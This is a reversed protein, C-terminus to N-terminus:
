KGQLYALVLSNFDKAEDYLGHGWEHYLHLVANPIAQAIEQSPEWGLVRDDEGGIVFTPAHIKSLKEAANHTLCAESQKLFRDYSDPKTLKALMPIYKKNKRYYADSYILRVNSDMLSTHDDQLAYEKWQLLGSIMIPNPKHCTVVLVLKEVKEPHDAALHQAIMGGMSVGMVHAKEIGLAEMAFCVDEAMDRTTFGEPITNRRSFAYVTYDKTFCRYMAAMPLATGRMTRLGDGLGPLMILTQKGSGFRIYEMATNGISLIDNKAEYLMTDDGKNERPM